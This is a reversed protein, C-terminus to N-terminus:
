ASMSVDTVKKQFFSEKGKMIPEIVPPGSFPFAILSCRALAASCAFTAKPKHDILDTRSCGSVSGVKLTLCRHGDM